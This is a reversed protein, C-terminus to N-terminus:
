FIKCQRRSQRSQFHDTICKKLTQELCTGSKALSLYHNMSQNYFKGVTQRVILKTYSATVRFRPATLLWPSWRGGRAPCGPCKKPASSSDWIPLMGKGLASGVKGVRPLEQWKSWRRCHGDSMAARNNAWSTTSAMLCATLAQHSRGRPAPTAPPPPNSSEM